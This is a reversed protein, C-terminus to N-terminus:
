SVSTACYDLARIVLGEVARRAHAVHLRVRCCAPLITWYTYNHPPAYALDIPLLRLYYVCRIRYDAPAAHEARYAHPLPLWALRVYTVRLTSNNM